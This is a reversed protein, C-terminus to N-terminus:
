PTMVSKLNAIELHDLALLTRTEEVQAAPAKAMYEPNKLRGEKAAASKEKQSLVKAKMDRQKSWDITAGDQPKVFCILEGFVESLYAGSPAQPRM